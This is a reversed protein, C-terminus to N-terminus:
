RCADADLAAGGVLLGGGGAEEGGGGGVARQAQRVRSRLTSRERSVKPPETSVRSSGEGVVKPAASRM